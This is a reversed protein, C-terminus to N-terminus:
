EEVWIEEKGIIEYNKLVFDGVAYPLEKALTENSIVPLKDFVSYLSTHLEQSVATNKPEVIVEKDKTYIHFNISKVVKNDVIQNYYALIIHSPLEEMKASYEDLRKQYEAESLKNINELEALSAEIQGKYYKGGDPNTDYFNALEALEMFSYESFDLDMELIWAISAISKRTVEDDQYKDYLFYLEKLIELFYKKKEM